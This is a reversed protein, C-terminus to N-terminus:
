RRRYADGRHAIAEIVVIRRQDDIVYVVRYDGRRASHKGELEFRLPGGVRQPNEALAGYILEVAAPAVKEPLRELARLASAAWEVSYPEEESV